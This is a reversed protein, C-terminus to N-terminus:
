WIPFHRHQWRCTELGWVNSHNGQLLTDQLKETDFAQGWLYRDVACASLPLVEGEPRGKGSLWALDVAFSRGLPSTRTRPPSRAYGLGDWSVYSSRKKAGNSAAMGGGGTLGERMEMRCDQWLLPMVLLCGRGITMFTHCGWFQRGTHALSVGKLAVPVAPPAGQAGPQSCARCGWARGGCGSGATCCGRTRSRQM